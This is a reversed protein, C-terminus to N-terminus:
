PSPGFAIANMYSPTAAGLHRSEPLSRLADRLLREREGTRAPMFRAGAVPMVSPFCIVRATIFAMRFRSRMSIRAM